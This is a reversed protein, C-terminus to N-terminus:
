GAGSGSGIAPRGFWRSAAREFGERDPVPDGAWAVVGDPRVLVAAAGLDDRAPGAAYRFRSEWGTAPERLRRDISLDLAVGRGDRMLDGLRTGDGLRLDPANRGTLPHDGGLDYRISSGSTREFM